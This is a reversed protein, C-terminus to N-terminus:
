FKIALMKLAASAAERGKNNKGSSREVAQGLNDTTIIGFGIPISFKLMVDMAGRSVESAIYYYHDTEGKIVCGLIVIADLNNKEVLKQCALPIEFAGPVKILQINEEKVGNKHLIEIAADQMRGVIDDNFEAAVIAIKLKEGDIISEKKDRNERFM